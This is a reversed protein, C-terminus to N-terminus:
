IVITIKIIFTDIELIIKLNLIKIIFQRLLIKLKYLPNNEPGYNAGLIIATRAEKWMNKPQLRRDLTESIWNMSGHRGESVFEKLHKSLEIPIRAECFGIDDFELKYARSKISEILNSM